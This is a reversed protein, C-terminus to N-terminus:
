EIIAAIIKAEKLTNFELDGYSKRVKYTLIRGNEDRQPIIPDYGKTFRVQKKPVKYQKM